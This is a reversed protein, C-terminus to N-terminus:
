SSFILMFGAGHEIIQGDKLTSFSRRYHRLVPIARLPEHKVLESYKLDKLIKEIALKSIIIRSM